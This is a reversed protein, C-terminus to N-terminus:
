EIGKLCVWQEAAALSAEKSDGAAFEKMMPSGDKRFDIITVSLCHCV